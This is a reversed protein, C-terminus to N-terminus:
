DSYLLSKHIEVQHDLPAPVIVVLLPLAEPCARPDIIRGSSTRPTIVFQAAMGASATELGTGSAQTRFVDLECGEGSDDLATGDGAELSGVGGAGQGGRGGAWGGAVGRGGGWHPATFRGHAAGAAAKGVDKKQAVEGQVGGQGGGQETRQGNGTVITFSAYKEAGLPQDSANMLQVTIKHDGRSLANTGEMVLYLEPEEMNAVLQGDLFLHAYGETPIDLGYLKVHLPLGAPNSADVTGGHVPSVIDISVERVEGGACQLEAIVLLVFVIANRRHAACDSSASQM